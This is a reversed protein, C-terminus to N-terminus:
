RSTFSFFLLFSKRLCIKANNKKQCTKRYKEMLTFSAIRLIVFLSSFCFIKPLLKFMKGIYVLFWWRVAFNINVYNWSSFFSCSKNFNWLHKSHRLHKQACWSSSSSKQGTLIIYQIGTCLGHFNEFIKHSLSKMEKWREEKRGEELL